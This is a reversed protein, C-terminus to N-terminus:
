QTLWLSEFGVLELHRMRSGGRWLYYRFWWGLYKVKAKRIFWIIFVLEKIFARCSMEEQVIFTRGYIILSVQNSFSTILVWLPLFVPVNTWCDTWASGSERSPWLISFLLAPIGPHSLPQAGAKPGPCPGPIGPDLGVNPERGPAQKERLRRRQRRQTKWSYTFLIKFFFLFVSVSVFVFVFNLLLPIPM